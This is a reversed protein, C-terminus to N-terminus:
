FGFQGPDFQDDQILEIIQDAVEEKSWHKESAKVVTPAIDDEDLFLPDQGQRVEVYIPRGPQEEEIPEDCCPCKIAKTEKLIKALDTTEGVKPQATISNPAISTSSSVQKVKLSQAQAFIDTSIDLGDALGSGQNQQSNTKSM